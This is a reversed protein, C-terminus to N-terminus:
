TPRPVLVEVPVKTGQKQQDRMEEHDRGAQLFFVGVFVYPTHLHFQTAIKGWVPYRRRGRWHHSADQQYGSPNRVLLHCQHLHIALKAGLCPKPSLLLFSPAPMSTSADSVTFIGPRKDGFRRGITCLFSNANQIQNVMMSSFPGGRGRMAMM